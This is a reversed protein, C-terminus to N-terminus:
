PCEECFFPRRGHQCWPGPAETPGHDNGGIRVGAVFGGVAEAMQKAAADPVHFAGDRQRHLTAGGIGIETCNGGPVIRAM